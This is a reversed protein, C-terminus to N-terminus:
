TLCKLTPMSTISEQWKCTKVESPQFSKRPVLKEKEKLYHKEEVVRINGTGPMVSHRQWRASVKTVYYQSLQCLPCQTYGLFGNGCGRHAIIECYASIVAFWMFAHRQVWILHIGLEIMTGKALDQFHGYGNRCWRVCPLLSPLFDSHWSVTTKFM